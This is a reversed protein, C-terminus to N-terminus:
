SRVWDVETIRLERMSHEAWFLIEFEGDRHTRQSRGTLDRVAVRPFDGGKFEAWQAGGDLSIFLGLETGVFVIREGKAPEAVAQSRATEAPM